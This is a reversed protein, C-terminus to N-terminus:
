NDLFGKLGAYAATASTAAITLSSSLDRLKQITAHLKEASQTGSSLLTALKITLNSTNREAVEKRQRLMNGLIMGTVYAFGISASYEFFERWDRPSHPMIPTQDIISTISSMGLSAIGGMAFAAAAWALFSRRKVMLLFAFPVPILLSIVRLYLTNLDYVVTILFHSLLLLLLPTLWFHGWEIFKQRPSCGGAETTMTDLDPQHWQGTEIRNELADVRNALNELKSLEQLRTELTSIKQLIPVFLFLDRACNPCAIATDSIETICYPCQM